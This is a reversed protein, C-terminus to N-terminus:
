VILLVILALLTALLAGIPGPDKEREDREPSM